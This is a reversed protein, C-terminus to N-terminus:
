FIGYEMIISILKGQAKSIKVTSIVLLGVNSVNASLIYLYLVVSITRRTFLDGAQEEMIKNKTGAPSKLYIMHVISGFSVYNNAMM